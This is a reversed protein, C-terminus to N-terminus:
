SQHLRAITPCHGRVILGQPTTRVMDWTALDRAHMGLFSELHKRSPAGIRDFRTSKQERKTLFARACDCYHCSCTWRSLSNLQNALTSNAAPCPGLIKEIWTVLIKRTALDMNRNNKASWKQLEPLLPVLVTSIYQINVQSSSTFRQVVDATLEPTGISICWDLASIIAATSIISVRATTRKALTSIM